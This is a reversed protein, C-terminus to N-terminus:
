QPVSASSNDATTKEAGENQMKKKKMKQCNGIYTKKSKVKVDQWHTWSITEGEAKEASGKARERFTERGSNTVSQSEANVTQM